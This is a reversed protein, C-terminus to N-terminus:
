MGTLLKETMDPCTKRPQVLFLCLIFHRALPCLVTGTTLSSGVAGLGRTLCDVVSGSHKEITEQFYINGYILFIYYNMASFLM